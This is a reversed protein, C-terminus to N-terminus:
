PSFVPMGDFAPVRLSTNKFTAFTGQLNYVQKLSALANTGLSSTLTQVIYLQSDVTMSPFMTLIEICITCKCQEHKKSLSYPYYVAEFRCRVELACVLAYTKLDAMGMQGLEQAVDHLIHYLSHAAMKPGSDNTSGEMSIRLLCMAALFVARSLWQLLEQPTITNHLIPHLGVPGKIDSWRGGSGNLALPIQLM